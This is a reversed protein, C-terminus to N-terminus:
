LGVPWEGLEKFIKAGLEGGSRWYIQYNWYGYIYSRESTRSEQNKSAKKELEWMKWGAEVVREVLRVRAKDNGAFGDMIVIEVM